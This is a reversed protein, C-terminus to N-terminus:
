YIKASFALYRLNNTKLNGLNGNEKIKKQKEFKLFTNGFNKKQNVGSTPILNVKAQDSELSLSRRSLGM